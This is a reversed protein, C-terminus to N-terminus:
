QYLKLYEKASKEWGLQQSMATLCLQQWTTEQAYLNIARYVAELMADSDEHKFVFGTATKHNITEPQADTVTDVLGGTYHVVPLTGYRMSYMQNLGCPEFRSPMLFIDCGAEVQHALSESYGIHVYLRDPFDKALQQLAQEYISHGSGLVIMRANSKEFLTPAADIIMDIGKQDVLRGIFGILPATKDAVQELGAQQLLFQKNKMKAAAYHKNNTYNKVLHTDTEPNWVTLDIGNLIGTLKEGLHSLLGEYRYGFEPTCIEKAYTPSVTTIHDSFIMGAKLMSLGGYFEIYDPSWWKAPLDLDIFNQYSFHGDYALNHLTFITVPRAEITSLFAPVLGTQWDHCHVVEPRWSNDSWGTVMAAVARSFVTFREANDPWDYGEIHTYPNGPRDFLAPVDILYLDGEFADQPVQLLRVHHTRNLGPLLWSGLEVPTGVAALVDRYAPLVLRVDNGLDRLALPLSHVVDGLGGTKIFPFAESAAFLINM